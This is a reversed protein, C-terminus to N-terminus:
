SIQFLWNEMQIIILFDMFLFLRIEKSTGVVNITTDM